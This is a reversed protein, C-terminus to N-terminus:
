GKMIFRKPFIFRLRRLFDLLGTNLLLYVSINKFNREFVELSGFGCEFATDTVSKKDQLLMDASKMIRLTNLYRIPTIGSFETFLRSFQPVSYGSANAMDAVTIKNGFQNEAYNFAKCLFKRRDM